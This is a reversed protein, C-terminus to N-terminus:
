PRNARGNAVVDVAVQCEEEAPEALKVELRAAYPLVRAARIRAEPGAAQEIALQPAAVFPPCFALHVHATRQRAQFAVQFQAELVDSGEATVRRTWRQYVSDNPIGGVVQGEIQEERRPPVTVKRRRAVIGAVLAAEASVLLLWMAVLGWAPSGPLSLVMAVIAAAALVPLAAAWDGSNSVPRQRLVHLGLIGAALLLGTVALALGSLPREWAGSGRRVVLVFAALLYLCTGSAIAARRMSSVDARPRAAPLSTAPVLSEPTLIM